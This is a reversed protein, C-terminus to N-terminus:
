FETQAVILRVILLKPRCSLTADSNLQGRPGSGRLAQGKLGGGIPPTPSSAPRTWPPKSCMTTDSITAPCRNQNDRSVATTFKKLGDSDMVKKLRGPPLRKGTQLALATGVAVGEFLNLPTISRNGRAIGGPVESIIRAMTETFLDVLKRNPGKKSKGIM